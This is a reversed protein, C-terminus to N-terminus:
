ALVCKPHSEDIARGPLGAPLEGARSRELVHVQGDAREDAVARQLARLAAPSCYYVVGAVLRSRAWGRVITHLRVPAKVTLEVEVALPLAARVGGAPWCVLDPRHRERAGSPGFGLEASAIARGAASECARLERESLVGYRGRQARDLAAAVRGCELLHAFGSPSVRPVALEDRGAARLGARTIVHLAPQGHLLRVSEVLGDRALAGLRAAAAAPSLEHVAALDELGAAGFSALWELMATTTANRGTM